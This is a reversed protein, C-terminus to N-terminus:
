RDEPCGTCQPRPTGALQLLSAAVRAPDVSSQNTLVAITLREGPVYRVVSRFGLYRGSHGYAPQGGLRTLQVGLGYPIPSGDAGPTASLM